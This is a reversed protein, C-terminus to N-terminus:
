PNREMAYARLGRAIMERIVTTREAQGEREEIIVDITELMDHPIRIAIQPMAGGDKRPRGAPLRFKEVDM